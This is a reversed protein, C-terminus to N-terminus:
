NLWDFVQMNFIFFKDKCFIDSTNIFLLNDFDIDHNKLQLAEDIRAGTDSLFCILRYLRHEVWTQPKWHFLAQLQKDSVTKM